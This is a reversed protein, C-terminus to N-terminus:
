KKLTMGAFMSMGGGGMAPAPTPKEETSEVAEMEEKLAENQVAQTGSEQEGVVSDEKEKEEEEEEFGLSPPM